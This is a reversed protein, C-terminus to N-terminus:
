AAPAHAHRKRRHKEGRRIQQQEVLRGVVEIELGGEPELVEQDAVRTRQQKDGVVAIQQVLHHILDYMEVLLLQREVGAAVIAEFLGPGLPQGLDSRGGGFLGGLAAM